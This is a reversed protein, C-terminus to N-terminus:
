SWHLTTLTKTGAWLHTATIEGLKGYLGVTPITCFCLDLKIGITRPYGATRPIDWKKELHCNYQASYYTVSPCMAHQGTSVGQCFGTNIHQM